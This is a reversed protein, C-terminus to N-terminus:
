ADASVKRQAERRRRISLYIDAVPRYYAEPIPHNLECQNYLAQALPKNEVIVLGYVFALRKLRKAVEHAGQSVVVPAGMTKPDYKLAVALHVPNTILLDAGRIGRLSQSLKVFERHLRQRRRKMRPDGERDRLERRVERRSMRMKGLFDRRAIMQDLVAFVAAAALFYLLLKLGVARIVHALGSADTIAAIDVNQAARIVLFAIAGYVVIKLVNKGTEILMRVSFVRKLGRAPSLRGFDPRLQETTFVPGTQVFEFVLVVLFVSAAMFAIPKAASLLTTGTVRLVSNPSALVTPAAVLARRAALAVVGAFAPGRIWVYGSFTVLAVLFGLDLGRAVVGKERSRTLKYPTAQESRNQETESM